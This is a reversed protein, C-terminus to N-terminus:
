RSSRVSSIFAMDPNVDTGITPAVASLGVNLFNFPGTEGMPDYGSPETNYAIGWILTDPLTIGAPFEFDAVRVGLAPGDRHSSDTRVSRSRRVDQHANRDGHRGNARRATGAM